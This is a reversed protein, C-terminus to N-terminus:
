RAGVLATGEFAKLEVIRVRESLMILFIRRLIRVDDAGRIKWCSRKVAGRPYLVYTSGFM